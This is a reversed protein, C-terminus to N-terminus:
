PALLKKVTEVGREILAITDTRIAHADIIAQKHMEVYIPMEFFGKSFVANYNGDLMNIATSAAEQVSSTIDIAIAADKTSVTSQTVTGIVTNVRLMLIGDAIKELATLLKQGIPSTAVPQANATGSM